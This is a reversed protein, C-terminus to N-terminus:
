ETNSWRAAKEYVSEIDKGIFYVLSFYIFFYIFKQGMKLTDDSGSECDSNELEFFM